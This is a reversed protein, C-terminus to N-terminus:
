RAHEIALPTANTTDVVDPIDIAPANGLDVFDFEATAPAVRHVMPLAFSFRLRRVPGAPEIWVTVDRAEESWWREVLAITREAAARNEAPVASAFAAYDVRVRYRRLSEGGVTDQGDTRSEGTTRVIELMAAPNVEPMGALRRLDVEGAERVNDLDVFLGRDRPYLARVRPNLHVGRGCRPDPRPPVLDGPAARM